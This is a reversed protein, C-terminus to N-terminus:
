GRLDERDPDRGLLRLIEDLPDTAPPVPVRPAFAAGPKLRDPGDPVARAIPLAADLADRGPKYEAGITRAVDWGHVVYDVLHFGVALRGPFARGFEPVVFDRELVGPEAFALLVDEAAEAYARVPDDTEVPQWASEDAGHGRAAAAFGRHQATMHALLARLDWEACPTPRPLHSPIVELVVQVSGRTAEADARVIEDIHM